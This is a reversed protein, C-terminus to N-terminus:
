ELIKWALNGSVWDTIDLVSYTALTDLLFLNQVTFLATLTSKSTPKVQFLKMEECAVSGMCLPYNTILLSNLSFIPDPHTKLECYVLLCKVKWKFLLRTFGGATSSAVDRQYSITMAAALRGWDEAAARVDYVPPFVTLCVWCGFRMQCNCFTWM